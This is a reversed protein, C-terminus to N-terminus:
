PWICICGYISGLKRSYKCQGYISNRNEALVQRYYPRKKYLLRITPNRSFKRHMQSFGGTSWRKISIHIASANAIIWKTKKSLHIRGFEVKRFPPNGSKQRLLKKLCIQPVADFM